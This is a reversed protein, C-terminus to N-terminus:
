IRFDVYGNRALPAYKQSIQYGKPLDPYFYNKRDFACAPSIECNMAAAARLSFEFARENLVPLVGPMGLCIPCTRTNPM